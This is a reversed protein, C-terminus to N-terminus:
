VTDPQDLVQHQLKVALSRLRPLQKSILTLQTMIFRLHDDVENLDKASLAEVLTNEENSYVRVPQRRYLNDAIEELSKALSVAVQELYPDTVPHDQLRERYAGLASLYGLLTHSVVLFRFGVESDKSFQNPELLMNALTTSLAADANHADRRAVRYPLNDQKITAYQTIIETLYHSNCHLANALVQNLRRGQWDPFIWYAVLVSILCGILTDLLRPVIVTFASTGIQNFCCLVMVTIFVTSLAYHSTRFTFFLVGTIIVILADVNPDPFLSILVWSLIVGIITGVIRQVLRIKTAGYNPRCVFVTTLLVWYGYGINFLGMIGYGILLALSLRVAYRFVLSSPTLNQVIRMLADKVTHPDQDFLITDREEVIADPNRAALLRQNLLGLNDALAILSFLLKYNTDPRTKIYDISMKLEDLAKAGEEYAFPTGLRIASALTRCAKAYHQLLRQCRFLVDSHFFADILEDYPYHSSSAREHIDQALFYLRLYRSVQPNHRAGKMRHIIIEKVENLANVVRGNQQALLLRKAEEDAQKIPEFMNAKIALYAALEVFLLSLAQQVPQNAFFVSWVISLLGYWAAGIVLVLSDVWLVVGNTNIHQQTNIMSYISLILTAMGITSYRSGLAGLMTLSFSLGVLLVVFLWAHTFVTTFALATVSFSILTVITAKVRGRWNDETEALASAIVGLFLPVVLSLQHNWWCFAMAGTLAIFVRASCAFKEFSWVKHITQSFSRDM